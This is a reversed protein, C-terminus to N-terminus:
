GGEQIWKSVFVSLSSWTGDVLRFLFCFGSYLDQFSIYLKSLMPGGFCAAIAMGPYGHRAMSLDSILDVFNIRLVRFWLRFRKFCKGGLSNGWALVTLGLISDTLKFVVGVSQMVEIVENAILNIFVVSTGFGVFSFLRHYVPAKDHVSTFFVLLALAISALLVIAWLPFM